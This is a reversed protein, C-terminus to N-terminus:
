DFSGDCLVRFCVPEARARNYRFGAKYVVILLLVGGNKETAKKPNCLTFNCAVTALHLDSVEKVLAQSVEVLFAIGSSKWRESHVFDPLHNAIQLCDRACVFETEHRNPFRM